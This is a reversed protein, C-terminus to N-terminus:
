DLPSPVVSSISSHSIRNGPYPQTGGVIDVPVAGDPDFFSVEDERDEIDVAREVNGVIQAGM